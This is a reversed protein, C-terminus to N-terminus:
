GREEPLGDRETLRRMADDYLRRWLLASARLDILEQHLAALRARVEAIEQELQLERDESVITAFASVHSQALCAVFFLASRTVTPTTRSRGLFSLDRNFTDIEDTRSDM